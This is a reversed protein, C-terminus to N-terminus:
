PIVGLQRGVRAFAELGYALDSDSLTASVMERIRAKGRPVTTFGLAMAFVGEEFLRASFEKALPAEGLMVPTIPTEGRGLDFGLRRMEAKFTPTNQWLRDLLEPSEELVDVAAICAAADAPTMASSFLFPRAKQRLSDTIAPKGAVCGSVFGFAKSLTGVEV